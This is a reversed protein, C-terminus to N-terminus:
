SGTFSLFFSILGSGSLRWDASWCPVVLAVNQKKLSIEGQLFPPHSVAAHNSSPFEFRPSGVQPTRGVVARGSCRCLSFHGLEVARPADRSEGRCELPSNLSEQM